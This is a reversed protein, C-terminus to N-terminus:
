AVLDLRGGLSPSAEESDELLGYRRLIREIEEESVDVGKTEKLWRKIEWADIEPNERARRTIDREIEPTIESEKEDIKLGKIEEKGGDADEAGEIREKQLEQRAEMAMQSAEAAIKRDQPSPDTPALAARQVARAKQLTAEPDDPVESTDISISGGIAHLRGDPGRQYVYRPGGQVYPGAAVAHAQEHQRVERDREKLEEAQEKEAETLQNLSETEVEVNLNIAEGSDINVEAMREEAMEKAAQSAMRRAAAALSRDSGSRNTGPATAAAQLRKAKQYAEAPDDPTSTDIQTSGGVAYMKGDPGREYEYDIGRAYPGAAARHANEHARVTRDRKRLEEIEEREEETLGGNNSIKEAESREEEGIGKEEPIKDGKYTEKVPSYVGAEQGPSENLGHEWTVEDDLTNQERSKVSLAPSDQIRKNSVDAAPYVYGSTGLSGIGNVVM